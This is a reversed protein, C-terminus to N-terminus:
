EFFCGAEFGMKFMAKSLPNPYNVVNAIAIRAHSPVMPAPRAIVTRNSCISNLNAQAIRRFADFANQFVEYDPNWHDLHEEMLRRRTEKCIAESLINVNYESSQQFSLNDMNASGNCLIKDDVIMLKSHVYISKIAKSHAEQKLLGYVGVRTPATNYIIQLNEFIQDQSIDLLSGVIGGPLDSKVPMMVIVRLNQNSQLRDCLCQTLSVDHFPYQHEIYLCDQANSILKIFNDLLTHTSFVGPWSRLVRMTIKEHLMNSELPPDNMPQGLEKYNPLQLHRVQHCDGTFAHTWRQAFHLHFVRTASGRIMIQNDHWLFRINRLLPQITYDGYRGPTQSLINSFDWLPLPPQHLPQDFRGRAMDFGGIFSICRNPLEADILVLKEHHCSVLGKPNGVIIFIIHADPYKTFPDSYPSNSDPLNFDSHFVVVKLNVLKAKQILKEVERELTVEGMYMFRNAYSLLRHRWVMIRIRVGQSAKHIIVDRLTIWKNNGLIRSLISKDTTENNYYLGFSLSIEWGLIDISKTAQMMYHYYRGFTQLGDICIEVNNDDSLESFTRSSVIGNELFQKTISESEPKPHPPATPTPPSLKQRSLTFKLAYSCRNNKINVTRTLEDSSEFVFPEQKQDINFEVFEEEKPQNIIDFTWSDLSQEVFRKTRFTIQFPGM